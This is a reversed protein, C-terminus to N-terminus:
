VDNTSQLLEDLALQKEEWERELRAEEDELQKYSKNLGVSKSPDNYTQPDALQEELKTKEMMIEDMRTEIDTIRRQLRNRKKSVIKRAEAEQRKQERSKHLPNDTPKRSSVTRKGTGKQTNDPNSDSLYEERKDLYYSYNGPYDYAKGAKIEFVREVLADLFYRDHSIILLTGDYHRLANELAHKSATDLHNTPEDMILFNCPSLLIKALSVRAKEGGSLVAIKKHIEDGHFRFLGLIDQLKTRFTAAASAEVEQYITKSIDLAETQHQAYYGINVREGVTINGTNAALEGCILRTLTTKGQGNAGVLAIKEGRTINFNFNNFVPVTDYAFAMDSISLVENYSKVDAKIRFSFSSAQEVDVAQPMKELMKVRSQVQAAKSAKYRFRDIFKEIREREARQALYAKHQQERQEDRKKEYFRYNGSYHTIHARALEAIENALRDLFFRDHSVIIMSGKFTKLFEELWELSSLDLHNTPEDLLLLDPAQLLLRALHGRMRWGGSFEMIDREYDNEKFGLGQLIRKADAERNYGGLIQFRDELQGLRKILANNEEGNELNKHISKIGAEIDVLEQNGQLVLNLLSQPGTKIEEQPLYGIRYYAPFKVTGAPNPLEGALHRLFTTKGAGNPGILGIRRGPKIQWNINDLLLRDGIEYSMNQIYLM